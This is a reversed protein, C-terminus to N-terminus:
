INLSAKRVVKPDDNNADNSCHLCQLMEKILSIVKDDNIILSKAVMNVKIDDRDQQNLPPESFMASMKAKKADDPINSINFGSSLAKKIARDCLKLVGCNIVHDGKKHQSRKDTKRETKRIDLAFSVLLGIQYINLCLSSRHHNVTDKSTTLALTLAKREPQQSSYQLIGLICNHSDRLSSISAMLQKGAESGKDLKSAGEIVSWIGFGISLVGGVATGIAKASAQLGKGALKGGFQIGTKSTLKGAEKVGTQLKTLVVVPMLSAFNFLDASVL